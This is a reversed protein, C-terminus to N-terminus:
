DLHVDLTSADTAGDTDSSKEGSDFIIGADPSIQFYQRAISWWESDGLANFMTTIVDASPNPDPWGYWVIYVHIPAADVHGGFYDIPQLDNLNSVLSVTPGATTEDFGPNGTLDLACRDNGQLVWNQQILYKHGGFAVNYWAGDEAYVNGWSWVCKDCIEDFEGEDPITIWSLKTDDVMSPNPDTASEATEHCLVTIMSDAAWDGNPTPPLAGGDDSYNFGSCANEGGGYNCDPNEPDGIMGYHILQNTGSVKTWVSSHWGCYSACYGTPIGDGDSPDSVFIDAGTLVFYISNEDYPLAGANLRGIVIGEIDSTLLVDGIWGNDGSNINVQGAVSIDSSVFERAADGYADVPEVDPLRADYPAADPGSALDITADTIGADHTEADFESSLDPSSCGVLTLLTALSLLRISM